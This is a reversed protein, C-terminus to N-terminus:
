EIRNIQTHTKTKIMYVYNATVKKSGNQKSIGACFQKDKKCSEQEENICMNESAEGDEDFRGEDPGSFCEGAFIFFLVFDLISAFSVHRQKGPTHARLPSM